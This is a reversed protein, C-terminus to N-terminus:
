FAPRSAPDAQGKHCTYCKVENKLAPTSENLDHTMKMMVRAIAKKPNDESAFNGQVHCHTCEVGLSMGFSRMIDGLQSNPVGGLIQLNKHSASAPPEPKRLPDGASDPQKELVIAAESDKGNSTTVTAVTLTNGDASLTLKANASVPRGAMKSALVLTAGDWKAETRMPIGGMSNISPKTLNYNFMSRNEGRQGYQGITEKLVGDKQEVIMLYNQPPPGAFKSKELNAKWVGTLDPTQASLLVTSLAALVITRM